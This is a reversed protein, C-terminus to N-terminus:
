DYISRIFFGSSHSFFSNWYSYLVPLHKSFDSIFSVSANRPISLHKNQSFLSQLLGRYFTSYLSSYYTPSPAVIENFFLLEVDFDDICRCIDLYGFFLDISLFSAGKSFLDAKLPQYEPSSSSIYTFNLRRILPSLRLSHIKAEMSITWEIPDRFLFAKPKFIQNNTQLAYCDVYICLPDLLVLHKSKSSPNLCIFCIALSRLLFALKPSFRSVIFIYKSFFNEQLVVVSPHKLHSLFTTGCRGPCAVIGFKNEFYRNLWLASLPSM